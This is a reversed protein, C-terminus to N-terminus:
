LEIKAIRAAHRGAEFATLLFTELLNVALEPEILRAGMCLVNADNHARALKTSGVDYGLAARIGPIRNATMAMGQGSGCILIGFSQPGLSKVATEAARLKLLDLCLKKAFDPYDVRDANQPGLDVWQWNVHNYTRLMYSKLEFGAHDSAILLSPRLTM